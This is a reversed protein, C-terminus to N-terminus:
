ITVGGKLRNAYRGILCNWWGSSEYAALDKLGLVMNRRRGGRGAAQIATITGGMDLVTASLAGGGLRFARVVKGDRTTGYVTAAMCLGSFGLVSIAAGRGSDVRPDPQQLDPGPAPRITPMAWAQWSNATRALLRGHGPFAAAAAATDDGDMIDGAM